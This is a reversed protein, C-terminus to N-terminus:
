RKINQLRSIGGGLVGDAIFKILEHALQPGIYDQKVAWSPWISTRTASYMVFCGSDGQFRGWWEKDKGYDMILWFGDRSDFSITDAKIYGHPGEVWEIKLWAAIQKNQAETLRNTTMYAGRAVTAKKTATKITTLM